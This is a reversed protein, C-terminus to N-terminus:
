LTKIVERTVRVQPLVFSQGHVKVKWSMGLM